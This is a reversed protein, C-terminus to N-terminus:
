VHYGGLRVLKETNRGVSCQLMSCTVKSLYIIEGTVPSGYASSYRLIDHVSSMMKVIGSSLIYILCTLFVAVVVDM